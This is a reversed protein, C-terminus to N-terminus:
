AAAGDDNAAGAARAQLKRLITEPVRYAEIPAPSKIVTYPPVDESVVCGAGVVASEGVTVGALLIVGAGVMAGQKLTTPKAHTPVMAALPRTPNPDFNLHTLVVCRMGMGAGDELTIKETLDLFVEKGIHCHAGVRLNHYGNPTEHVTTWPGIPQCDRHIIAGFRALTERTITPSACQKLYATIAGIGGHAYLLEVNPFQSAAWLRMKVLDLIKKHLM